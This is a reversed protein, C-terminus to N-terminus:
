VCFGVAFSAFHEGVMHIIRCLMSSSIFIWSMFGLCKILYLLLIKKTSFKRHNEAFSFKWRGSMVQVSLCLQDKEIMTPLGHVLQPSTPPLWLYRFRSSPQLSHTATPERKRWTLGLIEPKLGSTLSLDCPNARRNWLSQRALSVESFAISNTNSNQFHLLLRWVTLIKCHNSSLITARCFPDMEQSPHHFHPYAQRCWAGHTTWLFNWELVGQVEQLKLFSVVNMWMVKSDM